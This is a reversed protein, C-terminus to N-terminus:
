TQLQKTRKIQNRLKWTPPHASCTEMQTNPPLPPSPFPILKGNWKFEQFSLPTFPSKNPMSSLSPLSLFFILLATRRQVLNKSENLERQAPALTASPQPAWYNKKIEQELTERPFSSFFFSLPLPFRSTLFPSTRGKRPNNPFFPRLFRFISVQNIRGTTM